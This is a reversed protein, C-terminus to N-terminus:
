DTDDDPERTIQVVGEADCMICNMIDGSFVEWSHGLWCDDSM